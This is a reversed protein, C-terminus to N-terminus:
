ALPQLLGDGDMRITSLALVIAAGEATQHLTDYGEELPKEPVALDSSHWYM